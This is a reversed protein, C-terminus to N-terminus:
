AAERVEGHWVYKGILHPRGSQDNERVRITTISCGMERLEMIRPAPSVINLKQRAEFTTCSGYCELHHRLRARQSEVSIDNLDNPPFYKREKCSKNSYFRMSTLNEAPQTNCAGEPREMQVGSM